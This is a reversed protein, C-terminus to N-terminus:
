GYSCWLHLQLDCTPTHGKYNGPHAIVDDANEYMIFASTTVTYFFVKQKTVFM